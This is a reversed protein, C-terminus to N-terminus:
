PFTIYDEESSIMGEGKIYFYQPNYKGILTFLNEEEQEYRESGYAIINDIYDHISGASELSYFAGHCKVNYGSEYVLLDESGWSTQSVREGTANIQDSAISFQYGGDTQNEVNEYINTFFRNMLADLKGFALMEVLSDSLTDLDLPTMAFINFQLSGEFYFHGFKQHLGDANELVEQHSVGSNRIISEAFKAVICPFDERKIPNTTTINLDKFQPDPYDLSFVSRLAGVTTRKVLRKYQVAPEPRFM